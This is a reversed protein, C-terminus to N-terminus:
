EAAESAAAAAEERQRRWDAAAEASILIKNGNHLFRPGTGESWLKYLASRSVRRADCFERLTYCAPAHVLPM